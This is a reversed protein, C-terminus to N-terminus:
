MRNVEELKMDSRRMHGEYWKLETWNEKTNEMENNRQIAEQSNGINLNQVKEEATDWRNLSICQTENCHSLKKNKPTKSSKNEFRRTRNGYSRMWRTKLHEKINM